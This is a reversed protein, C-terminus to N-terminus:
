GAGFEAGNEDRNGIVAATVQNGKEDVDVRTTQENLSVDEDATM